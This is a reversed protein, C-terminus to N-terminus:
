HAHNLVLSNFLARLPLLIVQFLDNFSIRQRFLRVALVDDDALCQSDLAISTGDFQYSYHKFDSHGGITHANPHTVVWTFLFSKSKEPMSLIQNQARWFWFTVIVLEISYYEAAYTESKISWKNEFPRQYPDDIPTYLKAIRDQLSRICQISTHLHNDSIIKQQQNWNRFGNWDHKKLVFIFIFVNLFHLMKQTNALLQVWNQTHEFFRLFTHTQLVKIHM